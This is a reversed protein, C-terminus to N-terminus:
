FRQDLETSNLPEDEYSALMAANGGRVRGKIWSDLTAM